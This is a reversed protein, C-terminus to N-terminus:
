QFATSCCKVTTSNIKLGTQLRPFNILKPSRVTLFSLNLSSRVILTLNVSESPLYEVEQCKGGTVVGHKPVITGGGKSLFLSM